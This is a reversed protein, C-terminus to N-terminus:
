ISDLIELVDAGFKEHIPAMKERFADRDVDDILTMGNDILQQLCEEESARTTENIVTCAEKAAEEIATIYEEPLTALTDTSIFFANSAYIHGARILYKQVQDFNQAMITPLPNDQGDIVGQQLGLYVESLATPTPVGGMAEMTEIYITQDPVRMKMGALDDPHKFVKEGTTFFKEGYYAAALAKVNMYQTMEEFLQQSYDSNHIRILHDYDKALFATDFIGLAEFRKSSDGFGLITLDLAGMEVADFMEKENGLQGAPFITITVNGDTKESVLRAFEEAGVDNPHGVAMLHGLKLEYKPSDAVAQTALATMCMVLALILALKRAISKKM